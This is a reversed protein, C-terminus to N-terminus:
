EANSVTEKDSQKRAPYGIAYTIGIPSLPSPVHGIEWQYRAGVPYQELGATMENLELETYTRLCSVIGDFCLALPIIPIIWTWFLRDARFPRLFPASLYALFPLVLMVLLALPTRATQEFVAIGQGNRVADQLISRANQPTFHHFATFLTRFGTLEVPIEAADVPTTVFQILPSASGTPQAAAQNPYLDTRLIPIPRHMGAYLGRHIQPWPGGGGSCLDIIRKSDSALLAGQLLPIVYRYQRGIAAIFRLYDTAGDRIVAPCWRQEHIEIFHRRKWKFDM